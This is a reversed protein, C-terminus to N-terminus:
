KETPIFKIKHLLRNLTILFYLVRYTTSKILFFIVALMSMDNYFEKVILFHGKGILNLRKSFGAKSSLRDEGTQIYMRAIVYSLIATNKTCKLIKAITLGEYGRLYEEFKITSIAVRNIATLCEGSSGDILYERLGIAKSHESFNIGVKKRNQDICRFFIVPHDLYIKLESFIEVGSGPLLTDDSDLFIVWNGQAHQVGFNRAGCVGRNEPLKIYILNGTDIYKRFQSSVVLDTNDISCDDIVLIEFKFDQADFAALVSEISSAICHARNFTAIIVSVFVTM